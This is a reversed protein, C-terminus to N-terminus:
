GSCAARQAQQWTCVPCLPSGPTDAPYETPEGCLVCAAREGPGGPRLGRLAREPDASVECVQETGDGTGNGTETPRQEEM